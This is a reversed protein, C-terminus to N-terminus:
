PYTDSPALSTEVYVHDGDQLIDRITMGMDLEDGDKKKARVVTPMGLRKWGQCNETDWRALCVILIVYHSIISACHRNRYMGIAVHALWKLRQTADGCSINIAKGHVHATLHWYQVKGVAVEDEEEEDEFGPQNM